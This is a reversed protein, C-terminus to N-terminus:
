WDATDYVERFIALLTRWLAIGRRIAQLRTQPAEMLVILGVFLTSSLLVSERVRRFFKLM